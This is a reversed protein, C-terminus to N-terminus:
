QSPVQPDLMRYRGLSTDQPALPNGWIYPSPYMMGLFGYAQGQKLARDAQADRRAMEAQQAQKAEGFQKLIEEQSVAPNTLDSLFSMTYRHVLRSHQAPQRELGELHKTVEESALAASWAAAVARRAEMDNGGTIALARVYTQYAEVRLTEVVQEENQGKGIILQRIPYALDPVSKQTQPRMSVSEVKKLDSNFKQVRMNHEAVARAERNRGFNLDNELLSRRIARDEANWEWQQRQQNMQEEQYPRYTGMLWQQNAMYDQWRQNERPVETGQWYQHRDVAWGHATKERALQGLREEYLRTERPRTVDELHKRDAMYDDWRQDERGHLVPQREYQGILYPRTQDYWFQYKGAARVDAAAARVDAAAARADSKKALALYEERNMRNLRREEQLDAHTQQQFEYGQQRHDQLDSHVMRRFDDDRKRLREQEMLLIHQNLASGLGQLLGTMAVAM